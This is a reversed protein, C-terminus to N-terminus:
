PLVTNAKSVEISSLPKCSIGGSDTLGAPLVVKTVNDCYDFPSTDPYKQFATVWHGDIKDPIVVTGVPKPNIDTIIAKGNELKYAFNYKVNSTDASRKEDLLKYLQAGDVKKSACLLAAEIMNTVSKPPMDPIAAKIANMAEAAKALNGDQVYLVFAGKMLLLKAAETDAEAALKMAANAVESRTKKGSRLAKREPELLKRVVPEARRTEKETPMAALQVAACAAAMAAMMTLKTKM